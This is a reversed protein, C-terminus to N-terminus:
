PSTPPSRCAADGRRRTVTGSAPVVIDRRGAAFNVLLFGLRAPGPPVGDFHFAGSADSDVRRAPGDAATLEVVVGPLRAGSDDIISGAVQAPQAWGEAACVLVLLASRGVAGILTTNMGPQVDSM